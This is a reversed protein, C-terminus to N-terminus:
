GYDEALSRRLRQTMEGEGGGGRVLEIVPIQIDLLVVELEDAAASM